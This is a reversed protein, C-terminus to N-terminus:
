INEYIQTYFHAIQMFISENWIDYYMNDNFEINEIKSFMECCHLMLTIPYEEDYCTCNVDVQMEWNLFEEEIYGIKVLYAMFTELIIKYNM